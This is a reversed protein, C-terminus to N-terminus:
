ASSAGTNPPHTVVGEMADELREINHMAVQGKRLRVRQRAPKEALENTARSVELMEHLWPSEQELEAGKTRPKHTNRKSNQLASSNALHIDASIAFAAFILLVPLMMFTPGSGITQNRHGLYIKSSHPFRLLLRVYLVEKPAKYRWSVGGARFNSM